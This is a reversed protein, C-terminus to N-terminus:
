NLGLWNLYFIKKGIYRAGNLSYHNADFLIKDNNKTLFICREAKQDCFLDIKKLLKINLDISINEIRKNLIKDKKDMTRFYQKELVITEDVNPLRKNEIYFQDLFSLYNEYYFSPSNTTM